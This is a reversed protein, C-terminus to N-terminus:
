KNTSNGVKDNQVKELEKENEEVDFKAFPLMLFVDCFLEFMHQEMVSHICIIVMVALIYPQNINRIM